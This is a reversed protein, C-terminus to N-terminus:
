SREPDPTEIIEDYLGDLMKAIEDKGISDGIWVAFGDSTISNVVPKRSIKGLRGLYLTVGVTSFAGFLITLEFTIPIFAPWAWLPKGGHLVPWDSTEIWTMLLFGIVGGSLGFILTIFPVWSRSLGMAKELGHIPFPSFCDFKKVGAEKVKEAAKLLDAASKITAVWGGVAEEYRFLGKKIESFSVM